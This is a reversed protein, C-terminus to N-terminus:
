RSIISLHFTFSNFNASSCWARVSSEFVVYSVCEVVGRGRVVRLIEVHDRLLFGRQFRNHLDNRDM